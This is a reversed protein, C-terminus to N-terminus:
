ETASGALVEAMRGKSTFAAYFEEALPQRRMLPALRRAIGGGLYVGGTAMLNLAADGATAACLNAEANAGVALAEELIVRTPDGSAIRAAISSEDIGQDDRLFRYLNPIGMGSCVRETSVHDHERRLHRLLRIQLEGHPAFSAHGGESPLRVYGGGTQPALFAEGLGTGPAVVAIAGAPDATGPKVTAVDETGLHPAAAAIAELDKVLFVDPVGVCDALTDTPASILCPSTPRRAM